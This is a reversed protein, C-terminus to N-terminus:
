TRFEAQPALRRLGDFFSLRDSIAVIMKKRPFTDPSTSFYQIEIPRTMDKLQEVSTIDTYPILQTARFNHQLLAEPRLECWSAWGPASYVFAFGIWVIGEFIHYRGHGVFLCDLAVGFTLTALVLHGRWWPQHFRQSHRVDSALAASPM